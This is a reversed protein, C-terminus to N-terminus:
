VTYLLVGVRPANKSVWQYKWVFSGYFSCCHSKFLRALVNRQLHQFNHILKNVSSIIQSKKIKCDTQENFTCDFYNGLLSVSKVMQFKIGGLKAIVSEKEKFSSKICVSRKCNFMIENEIAFENCTNLM